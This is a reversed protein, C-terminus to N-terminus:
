SLEIHRANVTACSKAPVLYGPVHAQLYSPGDHKRGPKAGPIAIYPYLFCLASGPSPWQPGRPAQAKM